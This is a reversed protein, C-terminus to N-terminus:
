ESRKELSNSGLAGSRSPRSGPTPPNGVMEPTCVIFCVCRTHLPYRHIAVPSATDVPQESLDGRLRSLTVWLGPGLALLQPTPRPSASGRPCGGVGWGAMPSTMGQAHAMQWHPINVKRNNRWALPFTVADGAAFVGPVNTQMMQPSHAPPRHTPCPGQGSGAVVWLSCGAWGM